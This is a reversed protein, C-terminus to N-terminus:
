AVLEDYTPPIESMVRLIRGCGRCVVYSSRDYSSTYIGTCGCQCRYHRRTLLGERAKDLWRHLGWIYM